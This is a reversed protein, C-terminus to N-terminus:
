LIKKTFTRLDINLEVYGTKATDFYSGVVANYGEVDLVSSKIWPYIGQKSFPMYVWEGGPLVLTLFAHLYLDAKCIGGHCPVPLIGEGKLM